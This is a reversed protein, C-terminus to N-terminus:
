TCQLIISFSVLGFIERIAVIFIGYNNKAMTGFCSAMLVDVMMHTYIRMSYFFLGCLSWYIPENLRM